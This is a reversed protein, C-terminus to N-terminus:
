RMAWEILKLAVMGVLMTALLSRTRWAVVFALVGAACRPQFFDVSPSGPLLVLGPVVLAATVAAPVYRLAQQFWNPFRSPDSGALFSARFLYVIAGCTIALLWFRVSTDTM